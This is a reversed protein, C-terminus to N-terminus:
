THETPAAPLRLSFMSGAGPTSHAEIRTGHLEAIRQALVLGIGTGGHQRALAADLQVFPQFLRPLDEAPIGHGSDAITIEIWRNTPASAGGVSGAQAPSQPPAATPASAGGVVGEEETTLTETPPAEAGVAAGTSPHPTTPPAEAGVATGSVARLTVSGGDRNFKVANDVLEDLLRRLLRPDALALADEAEVTIAIGRARAAAEQAAAAQRLLVGVDTEQPAFSAKGAELQALELLRSVLGNLQRGAGLIEGLHGKQEPTLPGGSGAELLDAFGLIGNLPTKLEHTVAALFESKMRSARALEANQRQIEASQGKLKEVASGLQELSARLAERGSRALRAAGFLGAATALAELEAESWAREAACDDFVIFGWWEEGAMIPAVLQSRIGLRAFRARMAEPLESQRLQLLEGRRLRLAEVEMGLSRYSPQETFMPESDPVHFEAKAWRHAVRVRPEDGPTRRNEAIWIRSVGTAEGLHSLVQEVALHWQAASPTEAAALFRSAGFAIAGLIADRRVLAAELAKRESIDAFFVVAGVIEGGQRLPQSWYEVAFPTGDARWFVEDDARLERGDRMVQFLRCAEVPYPSGDARTHHLVEHMNRGVLDAQARGILRACAPNCWTCRGGRDVGYIGEGAADLLAELRQRLAAESEAAAHLRGVMRNLADALRATEGGAAAEFRAGFEGREIRGAFGTTADVLRAVRRYVLVALALGVLFTAIRMALTLRTGLALTQELERQTADIAAHDRSHVAQEHRALAERTMGDSVYLQATAALAMALILAFVAVILAKISLRTM